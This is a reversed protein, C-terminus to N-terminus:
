DRLDDDILFRARAPDGDPLFLLPEGPDLPDAPALARLLDIGDVGAERLATVESERLDVPTPGNGMDSGYVLEGGAAAFRRVNDVVHAYQEGDHIAMTSIWSVSAAQAAIEDDTLRETFPSHALRDAGLRVARQAQGAGEAHAVLPLGHAAALKALERFLDDDLVPGADVNGVTKLYSVGAAALDAVVSAAHAADRLEIVSGEPAWDRDSPYGGPATLFPGAYEITVPAVVGAPPPSSSFAAEPNRVGANEEKRPLPPAADAPVQRHSSSFAAEPIRAAANEEKRQSAADGRHSSSFAAEPVHAGANEEKRQSLVAALRRIVDVNAGLDVVRGLRSGPLLSPDILQLHM